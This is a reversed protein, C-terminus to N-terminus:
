EGGAAERLVGGAILELRSPYWEGDPEVKMTEIAFAPDVGRGAM